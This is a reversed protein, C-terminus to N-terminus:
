PAAGFTKLSDLNALRQGAEGVGPWIPLEHKSRARRSREFMEESVAMVTERAAARAKHASERRKLPQKADGAGRPTWRGVRAEPSPASPTSRM